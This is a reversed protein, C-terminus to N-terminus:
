VAPADPMETPVAVAASETAGRPLFEAIRHIVVGFFAAAIMLGHGLLLLFLGINLDINYVRGVDRIADGAAIAVVVLTGLAAAIALAALLGVEGAGQGLLWYGGVVMIAYDLLLFVIGWLGPENTTMLAWGGYWWGYGRNVRFWPSAFGLASLVAGFLFAFRTPGLWAVLPPVVIPRPAEDDMERGMASKGLARRDGATAAILV